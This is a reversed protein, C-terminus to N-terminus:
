NNRCQGNRKCTIKFFDLLPMDYRKGKYNMEVEEIIAPGLGHNDVELAITKKVGM